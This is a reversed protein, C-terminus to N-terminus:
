EKYAIQLTSFYSSPLEEPLTVTLRGEAQEWALADASGMVRCDLVKLDKTGFRELTVVQRAEADPIFAFVKSDKCTFRIDDQSFFRWPSTGYIAEGNVAMWDGVEELTRIALDDHEGRPSMPVNLLLVGNKSVVDTLRAIVDRTKVKQFNNKKYHWGGINTGREWTEPLIEQPTEKEFDLVLGTRYPEPVSKVTTVAELSGGHRKMNTNYFHAIIAKGMNKYPTERLSRGESSIDDEFRLFQRWVGDYHADFYLYDIEYKEIVEKTRNYFKIMFAKTPPDGDPGPEHPPGYLEWPDLGEWWTGKGSEKTATTIDTGPRRGSDFWGWTNIAHVSVGFRLGYKDAAKKWEGVVDRGPGVNVSNWEQYTSNWMDFNCHHNAMSVFFKAGARKYLAMMSDPDWNELKWERCLDKYGFESLPGFRNTFINNQRHGEIYLNRAFWDGAEAEDQPSAHVWIGFKGNRYWDPVKYQSTLSEWDPTFVGEQYSFEDPIGNDM